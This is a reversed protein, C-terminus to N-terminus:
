SVKKENVITPKIWVCNGNKYHRWCGGRIHREPRKHFRHKNKQKSIYKISIRTSIYQLLNFKSSKVKKDNKVYNINNINEREKEYKVGTTILRIKEKIVEPKGMTLTGTKDLVVTDVKAMTELLAAEKFLIGKKFVSHFSDFDVQVTKRNNCEM